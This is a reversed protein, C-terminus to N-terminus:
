GIARVMMRIKVDILHVAHGVKKCLMLMLLTGCKRSVWPDGGGAAGVHIWATVKVSLLLGVRVLLM